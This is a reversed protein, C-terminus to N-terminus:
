IKSTKITKWSGNLYKDAYLPKLIRQVIQMFVAILLYFPNKMFVKLLGAIKNYTPVKYHDKTWPGFHSIIQQKLSLFRTTQTLYENLTSPIRYYVHAKEAFMFKYGKKKCSFYLFDDDSMMSKPMSLSRLFTTRGAVACGKLNHVTDGGNINCRMEYWAQVWVSGFKEVWNRPFDPTDNGGVLMVKEDTFKSAMESVIFPSGLRVDGDFMILIDEQAHTYLYNLRSPKGLRRGDNKVALRKDGGGAKIAVEATNDTCGDCLIYIKTLEFGPKIKQALFSKILFGINASENHAPVGIAITLKKM